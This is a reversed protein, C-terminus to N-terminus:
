EFAGELKEKLDAWKDEPASSVTELEMDELIKRLEERKGKKILDKAMTQLDALKIEPAETEDGGQKDDDPEEAPPLAQPSRKGAPRPEPEAGDPASIAAALDMFGQGIAALAKVVAPNSAPLTM